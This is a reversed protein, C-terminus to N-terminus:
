SGVLFEHCSESVNDRQGDASGAESEGLVVDLAPDVRDYLGLHRTLLYRANADRNDLAALDHKGLAVSFGVDLM